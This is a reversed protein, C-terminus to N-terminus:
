PLAIGKLIDRSKPLHLVIIKKSYLIKQSIVCLADPGDESGTWTGRPIRMIAFKATFPNFM